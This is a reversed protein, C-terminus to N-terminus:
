KTYILASYADESVVSSPGTVSPQSGGLLKHSNFEPGRASGATTM